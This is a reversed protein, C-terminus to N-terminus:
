GASTHLTRGRIFSEIDAGTVAGINKALVEGEPSYVLYTPTWGGWSAGVTRAYIEAFGAGDDILNPFNLEHREVFAQVDKRNDFGDIAVGLVTADTDRHAAHFAVMEHVEENCVHCDSAWVMVVLWKGKGAYDEVRADRGQMDRMIPWIEASPGPAPFLLALGLLLMPAYKCTMREEVAAGAGHGRGSAITM